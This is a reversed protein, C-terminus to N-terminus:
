AILKTQSTLALWRRAKIVWELAIRQEKQSAFRGDTYEFDHMKAAISILIHEVQNHESWQANIWIIKDGYMRGTCSLGILVEFGLVTAFHIANHM